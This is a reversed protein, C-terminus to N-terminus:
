KMVYINKNGLISENVANHTYSMAHWYFHREDIELSCLTEKSIKENLIDIENKSMEESESSYSIDSLSNMENLKEKIDECYIKYESLEHDKGELLKDASILEEIKLPKERKELTPTKFNYNKFKNPLTKQAQYPKRKPSKPSDNKEVHDIKDKKVLHEYKKLFKSDNVPLFNTM